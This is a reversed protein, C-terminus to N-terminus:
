RQKPSSSRSEMDPPPPLLEQMKQGPDMRQGGVGPGPAGVGLSKIYAILQMLQDESLQGQYGPMLDAPYPKGQPDLAIKARPTLISERLYEEGVKQVTFPTGQGDPRVDTITQHNQQGYLGAMSPGRSAHCGACSYQVFLKAGSVDPPDDTPPAAALWRQYEAPNLVVVRGIMGSHQTGCYEACFLNYVGPKTAEFWMYSYRGPLVDQKVRFEPLFFSHIVDESTMVLKVKRGVPVTLENIERRGDRHQIHWMWQKGLVHVETADDPISTQAIYVKTGWVFMVLVIALPVITWLLELRQDTPQEPPNPDADSRRRYKLAFGIVLVFILLTFFVSVAWWFAYLADVRPAHTSAQEPFLRFGKDM